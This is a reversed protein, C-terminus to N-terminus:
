SNKKNEYDKLLQQFGEVMSELRQVRELMDRNIMKPDDQLVADCFRRCMLYALVPANTCTTSDRYEDMKNDLFFALIKDSVFLIAMEPDVNKDMYLLFMRRFDSVYSSALSASSGTAVSVFHTCKGLYNMRKIAGFM